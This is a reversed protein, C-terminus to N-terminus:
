QEAQAEVVEKAESPAGSSPNIIGDIAHDKEFEPMYLGKYKLRPYIDRDINSGANMFANM